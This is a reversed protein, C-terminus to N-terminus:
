GEDSAPVPEEPTDDEGEPAFRPEDDPEHVPDPPEAPEDTDPATPEEPATTVVAGAQLRSRLGRSSWIGADCGTDLSAFRLRRSVPDTRASRIRAGPKRAVMLAHDWQVRAGPRRLRDHEAMERDVEVLPHQTRPRPGDGLRSPRGLQHVVLGAGPDQLEAGAGSVDAQKGKRQCARGHMAEDGDVEAGRGAAKRTAVGLRAPHAVLDLDSFTVEVVDEGGILPEVYDDGIWGPHGVGVRGSKGVVGQDGNVASGVPELDDPEADPRALTVESRASRGHELEARFVLGM